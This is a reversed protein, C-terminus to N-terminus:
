DTQVVSELYQFMELKFRSTQNIFQHIQQELENHSNIFYNDCALEDCEIKNAIQNAHFNADIILKGSKHIRKDLEKKFGELQEFLNMTNSIYIQANMLFLFFQLDKKLVQLNEIYNLMTYQLEEISKERNFGKYEQQIKM